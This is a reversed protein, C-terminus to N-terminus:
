CFYYSVKKLSVSTKSRHCTTMPSFILPSTMIALYVSCFNDNMPEAIERKFTLVDSNVSLSSVPSKPPSFCQWFKNPPTFIYNTLAESQYKEKASKLKDKLTHYTESINDLGSMSPQKLKQTRAKKLKRGLRVLEKMKWPSYWNLVKPKHPVFNQIWKIALDKFFCWM